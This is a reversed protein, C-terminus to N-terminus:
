QKGFGLGSICIVSMATRDFRLRVASLKAADFSKSGGAVQFAALPARVTQFVPEWEKEYADSEMPSLKTFTEKLPPPVAAFQSAPARAIVGDSTVLEITFDPSEREKTEPEKDEEKKKGPLPADEDLAAISIEITSRPDLQWKGAAAAPLTISYGPTAAGKARNWGLFVGNYGRDGQRWPIRGEHWISLNEGSIRGGSATTTTLDADEDFSALPVYSADQYRNVYITDPLWARAVRWDQFLPVYERRGNLTAELFAAIYT